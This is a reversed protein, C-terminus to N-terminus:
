LTSDHTLLKKMQKIEEENLFLDFFKQLLEAKGERVLIESFEVVKLFKQHDSWLKFKARIAYPAGVSITSEDISHQYKEIVSLSDDDYYNFGFTNPWQAVFKNFNNQTPEGDTVFAFNAYITNACLPDSETHGVAHTWIMLPDNLMAEYDSRKVNQDGDNDICIMVGPLHCMEQRVIKKLLENKHKLKDKAVEDSDSEEDDDPVIEIGYEILACWLLQTIRQLELENGRRCAILFHTHLSWIMKM